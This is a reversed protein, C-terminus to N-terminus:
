GIRNQVAILVLEPDIPKTLASVGSYIEGLNARSTFLLIPVEPDRQRIEVILKSLDINYSHFDIFLLDYLNPNLLALAQWFDVVSSVKYGARRLILSLTHSLATENEVM